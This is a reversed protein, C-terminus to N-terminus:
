IVCNWEHQNLISYDPFLSAPLIHHKEQYTGFKVGTTKIYKVFKIYRKLYHSREVRPDSLLAHEWDIM